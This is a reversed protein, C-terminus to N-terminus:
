HARFNSILYINSDFNWDFFMSLLTLAKPFSVWDNLKINDLGARPKLNCKADLM